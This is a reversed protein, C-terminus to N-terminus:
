AGERRLREVAAKCLGAELWSCGACLTDLDAPAISQRIRRRMQGWRVVDGTRLQLREAHRRDLEAILAQKECDEGRRHPCPTCIADSVAIVEIPTDEGAPGRLGESVIADMNATFEFSYGKGQYGLACLFHHPRFRLM